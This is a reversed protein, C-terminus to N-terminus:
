GHSSRLYETVSLIEQDSVWAAHLREPETYGPASVLMDGRGILREAGNSDLIVRSDTKSTVKFAIRSPINSKILGTIVKVVPKQTALVLHIGVARALQAIRVIKNELEPGSLMMLDAMEDVITVIYPLHCDKLSNYAEINKVLHESLLRYRRDMEDILDSFVDVAKLPDTVIDRWLHNISRYAAMEVRKPDVLVLKCDEPTRSYILSLILNNLCVSKGSGTCGAILLHPMKALDLTVPKGTTDTGVAFPLQIKSGKWNSIICRLGIISPETNPVEIGILDTGPIPAQIRINETMLAMALDETVNKVQSLRVGRALKIEYRSVVPGRTIGLVEGDLNFENLKDKIVEVAIPSSGLRKNARKLLALPPLVSMVTSSVTNIVGCRNLQKFAELKSRLETVM